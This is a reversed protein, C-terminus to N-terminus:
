DEGGKKRGGGEVEEGEAGKVVACCDAGVERKEEEPKWSYSLHLARITSLPSCNELCQRV